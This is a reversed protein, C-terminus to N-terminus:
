VGANRADYAAQLRELKAAYSNLRGAIERLHKATMPREGKVVRRSVTELKVYGRPRYDNVSGSVYINAPREWGFTVVRDGLSMPVAEGLLRDPVAGERVMRQRMLRAGRTAVAFRHGDVAEVMMALAHPDAVDRPPVLRADPDTTAFWETTM